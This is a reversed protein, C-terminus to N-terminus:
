TNVLFKVAMDKIENKSLTKRSTGQIQDESLLCKRIKANNAM